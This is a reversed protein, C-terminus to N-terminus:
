LLKKLYEPEEDTFLHYYSSYKRNQMMKAYYMRLLLFPILMGAFLGALHGFMNTWHSGFLYFIFVIPATCTLLSTFLLPPWLVYHHRLGDFLDLEYTGIAIAILLLLFGIYAWVIGSFGYIYGIHQMRGSILSVSSIIFPVGLLFFTITRRYFQGPFFVGRKQLYWIMICILVAAIFFRSINGLLHTIDTPNHVYNSFFINPLGPTGIRLYLYTRCTQYSIFDLIILLHIITLIVSVLITSVAVYRIESRVHM